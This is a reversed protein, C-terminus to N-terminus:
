SRASVDTTMRESPLGRALLDSGLAHYALRGDPSVARALEPDLKHPWDYHEATMVTDELRVLTPTDFAAIRSAVYDAYSYADPESPPLEMWETRWEGTLLEAALDPDVKAILRAARVWSLGTRGARRDVRM